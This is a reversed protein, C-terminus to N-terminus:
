CSPSQPILRQCLAGVSWQRSVRDFVVECVSCNPLPTLHEFEKWSMGSIEWCLAQIINSHTLVLVHEVHSDQAMDELAAKARVRLDAFSEGEDGPARFNACGALLTSKQKQRFDLYGADTHYAGQLAGFNRERLRLDQQVELGKNSHRKVVTRATDLARSLPSSVVADIRRDRLQCALQESEVVGKPALPLDLQGQVRHARNWTSEGHRVLYFRVVDAELGGDMEPMVVRLKQGAFAVLRQHIPLTPHISQANQHAPPRRDPHKCEQAPV